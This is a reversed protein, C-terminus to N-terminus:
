VPRFRLGQAPRQTGAHEIIERLDWEAVLSKANAPIAIKDEAGYIVLM